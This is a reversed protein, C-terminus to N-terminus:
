MRPYISLPIKRRGGRAARWAPLWRLCHRHFPAPRETLLSLPSSCIHRSLFDTRMSPLSPQARGLAATALIVVITPDFGQHPSPGRHGARRADTSRAYLLRALGYSMWRWAVRGEAEGLDCMEESIARVSARVGVQDDM